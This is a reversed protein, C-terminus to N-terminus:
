PYDNKHLLLEPRFPIQMPTPNGVIETLIGVMNHFYPTCRICGNWWTSYSAGSRMIAGPKDEAVFRRHMANGVMEISLIMLPDINYSPPDRFPACFLVTGEPGSQHRDYVIQPFWERYIVRNMAETEPMNAMFSDRNDDHGIYKHYLRPIGSTSRRHPDSERMYWNSVLEMGDPNAVSTLLIVDDLFRMTEQDERSLMQYVLDLEAQANVVETAHIGGDIWVIAKGENALEHAQDDTVGEALALTKAIHKYRDLKQHNQPSTIIAMYMTRGEATTGFAVLKMRDSEQELKKWYEVLQSYNILQYDAGIEFGFQEVPTTIKEIAAFLPSAALMAVLCVSLQLTRKRM